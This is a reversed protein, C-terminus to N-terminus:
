AVSVADFDCSAFTGENCYLATGAGGDTQSFLCGTAYGQTGDAPVTTGYAHLIGIGPVSRLVGKVTNHPSNRAAM